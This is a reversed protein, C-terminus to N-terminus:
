LKLVTKLCKDSFRVNYSPTWLLNNVKGSVVNDVFMAGAVSPCRSNCYLGPSKIFMYPLLLTETECIRRLHLTIVSIPTALMFALAYGIKQMRLFCALWGLPLWILENSSSTYCLFSLISRVALASFPPM